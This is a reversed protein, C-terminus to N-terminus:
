GFPNIVHALRIFGRSLRELVGPSGDHRLAGVVQTVTQASADAIMTYVFGSAAWAVSHGAVFARQGGVSAQQWGPMSSALSGRQVFLSVVNLGDSYELDVVEGSTTRASAASYLPLGGPLGGPVPWGEGALSALFRSPPTVTVWAPEAASRSWVRAIGAGALQPAALVGFKVSVFSDQSTVHDSPDFLERRLPVMTQKDLWYRAALSGDFRYLDVVKASRGVTSGAGHYAAVYHKGLLAV